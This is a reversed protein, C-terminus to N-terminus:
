GAAHAALALLAVAPPMAQLAAAPWFRRGTVALVLGAGVMSACCFAILVRGPVCEEGDLAVLVVGGIAGLALFLNYFGQNFMVPRLVAAESANRAFRSWVSPRTFLLSEMAFVAVHLLGAVTAAILAVLLM